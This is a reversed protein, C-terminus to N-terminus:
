CAGSLAAMYAGYAACSVVVGIVFVLVIRTGRARRILMVAPALAAVLTLVAAGVLLYYVSDPPVKVCGVTSFAGGFLGAAAVGIGLLILLIALTWRLPTSM